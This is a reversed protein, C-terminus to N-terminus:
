AFVHTGVTCLAGARWQEQAEDSDPDFQVECLGCGTM